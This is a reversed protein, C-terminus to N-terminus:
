RLNFKLINLNQWYQVSHLCKDSVKNICQRAIQSCHLLGFVTIKSEPATGHQFLFYVTLVGFITLM